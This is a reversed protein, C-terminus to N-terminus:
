SIRPDVNFESGDTPFRYWIDLHEKCAQVPNNIPTITLLFSRINEKIREKAGLEEEIERNLTQLLHEDKDIHGGPALWLGSKLVKNMIQWGAGFVISKPKSQNTKVQARFSCGMCQVDYLPYNLPLAMLKKGCNPCPILDVIEQEGTEGSQKNTIKGM